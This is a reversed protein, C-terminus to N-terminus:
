DTKHPNRYEVRVVEPNADWTGAGHISDILYGFATRACTTGLHGEVFYAGPFLKPVMFEAMGERVADEETIDQLRERRISVIPARFRSAWAPLFMPPRWKDHPAFFQWGDKDHQFHSAPWVHSKPVDYWHAEGLKGYHDDARYAVAIRGEGENDVIQWAETMVIVDGAKAKAWVRSPLRRTVDKLGALNARPMADSFPTRLDPM